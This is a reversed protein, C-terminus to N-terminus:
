QSVDEVEKIIKTMCKNCVDLQTHHLADFVEYWQTSSTREENSYAAVEENCLDCYRRIM